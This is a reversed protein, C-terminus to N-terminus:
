RERKREREEFNLRREGQARYDLSAPLDEPKIYEHPRPTKVAEGIVAPDQEILENKYAANASAFLSLTILHYIMKNRESRVVLAFFFQLVPQATYPVRFFFDNRLNNRLM